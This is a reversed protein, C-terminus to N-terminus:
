KTKSNEIEIIKQLFKAEADIGMYNLYCFHEFNERTRYNEDIKHVNFLDQWNKKYKSLQVIEGNMGFALGAIMGFSLTYTITHSLLDFWNKSKGQAQQETQLVFDALWHIFIISLIEIISLM